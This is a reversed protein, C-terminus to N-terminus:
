HAVLKFIECFQKMLSTGRHSPSMIQKYEFFGPAISFKKMDMQIVLVKNPYNIPINVSVISNYPQRYGGLHYVFENDPTIGSGSSGEIKAHIYGSQWSWYMGQSPDLHRGLAGRVQTSSDVGMKFRIEAVNGESVGSFVVERSSPVGADMLIHYMPADIITGDKTLLMLDHVYWRLTTFKIFKSNEQVYNSDLQLLNQDWRPQFIIKVSDYPTICSLYIFLYIAYLWM